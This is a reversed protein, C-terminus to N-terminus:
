KEHFYGKELSIGREELVSCKMGWCKQVDAFNRELSM